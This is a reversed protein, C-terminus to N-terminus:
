QYTLVVKFADPTQSRAQAMKGTACIGRRLPNM